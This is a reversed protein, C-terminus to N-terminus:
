FRYGISFGANVEVATFRESVERSFGRAINVYPAMALQDNFVWKYGGGLGIMFSNMDIERRIGNDLETYTGNRLKLFPSMYFSSPVDDEVFYYNYSVLYSNTKFDRESSGRQPYYSFRDNFLFEVGISQSRSDDLFREYGIEVSGLVITNFINLKVENAVQAKTGFAAVALLACLIIRKM